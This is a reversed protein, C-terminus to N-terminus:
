TERGRAELKMMLGDRCRLTIGPDHEVRHGPLLRLRFRQAIMATVILGELRALNKGVCFRPGGGFPLYACRNMSRLKESEFRLPDFREAEPWFEPHRHTVYPSIVLRTGRPIHYGAIVDDVIVHRVIAWIPTHLRLTECFAMSTYHLANVRDRTIETNGFVRDAEDRVCEAVCPHQDLMYWLWTLANATTEHGALLLTITQSRLASDDMLPCGSASNSSMLDSLLDNYGRGQRHESIIQDVRYELTQMARRFRRNAATPLFAPLSLPNQVKRYAHEMAVSIADEIEGMGEQTSTSFLAQEVVSYTLRMMESAVDIPEGRRAIGEWIDLMRQTRAVILGIYEDVRSAAFAPQIASRQALWQDGNTVLLGDGTVQRIKASAFTNKDYRQPHAFVHAIDDPHCVLHVTLPGLKYRVVNGYDRMGRLMLGLVDRRLEPLCGIGPIGRPGPAVRHSVAATASGSIAHQPVPCGSSPSTM